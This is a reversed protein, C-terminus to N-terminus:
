TSDKTDVLEYSVAAAFFSESSSITCTLTRCAHVRNWTHIFLCRRRGAGHGRLVGPAGALVGEDQLLGGFLGRPEHAVALFGKGGLERQAARARPRLQLAREGRPDDDLQLHVARHLGQRHRREDVQAAVGLLRHAPAGVLRLDAFPLLQALRQGRAHVADLSEGVVSFLRRPRVSQRWAAMSWARMSRGVSSASSSAM